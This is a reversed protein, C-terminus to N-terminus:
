NVRVREDEDSLLGSRSAKLLAETRNRAGLRVYVDRLLRFMERESYGVEQALTAVTSGNALKRLWASEAAKIGNRERPAVGGALLQRMVESPAVSYNDLAAELARVISDPRSDWPVAAAAGARLIDLYVSAAYTRVLAVITVDYGKLKLVARQDEHGAITALLGRPKGLGAWAEIDPPEEPIFGAQALAAIIGQRYAPVPDLVAVPIM